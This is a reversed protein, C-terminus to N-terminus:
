MYKAPHADRMQACLHRVDFSGGPALLRTWATVAFAATLFLPVYMLCGCAYVLALFFPLLAVAGALIPSAPCTDKRAPCTDKRAPSAPCIDKRAPSAPSAVQQEKELILSAPSTDKLAPSTDKLAPSAVKLAPSTNDNLAPSTNKPAPPSPAPPNKRMDELAALIEDASDLDLGADFSNLDVDLDMDTETLDMNDAGTQRACGNLEYM